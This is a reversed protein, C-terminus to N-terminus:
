QPLNNTKNNSVTSENLGSTSEPNATKIKQLKTIGIIGIVPGWTFLGVVGVIGIILLIINAITKLITLEGGLVSSIFNIIVTLILGIIILIIPGTFGIIILRTAKKKEIITDQM